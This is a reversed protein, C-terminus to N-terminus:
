VDLLCCLINKGVCQLGDVNVAWSEWGYLIVSSVFFDIDTLYCFKCSSTIADTISVASVIIAKREQGQFEEVSGVKVVERGLHSLLM